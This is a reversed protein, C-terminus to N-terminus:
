VWSTLPRKLGWFKVASLTAVRQAVTTYLIEKSLISCHGNAPRRTLIMVAMSSPILFNDSKLEHDLFSRLIHFSMMFPYHFVLFIAFQNSSFESQFINQSKYSCGEFHLFDYFRPARTSM